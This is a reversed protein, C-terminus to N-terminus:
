RARMAMPWLCIGSLLDSGGMGQHRRGSTGNKGIVFQNMDRMVTALKYQNTLISVASKHSRIELTRLSM